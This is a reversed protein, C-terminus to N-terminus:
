LPGGGLDAAVQRPEIGSTLDCLMPRGALVWLRLMDVVAPLTFTPRNAFPDLRSIALALTPAGRLSYPRRTRGIATVKVPQLSTM